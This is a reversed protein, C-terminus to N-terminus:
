NELWYGTLAQFFENLLDAIEIADGETLHTLKEKVYCPMVPHSLDFKYADKTNSIGVYVENTNAHPKVMFIEYRTGNGPEYDFTIYSRRKLVGALSLAMNKSRAVLIGNVNHM